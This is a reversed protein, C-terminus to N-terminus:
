CCHICNFLATVCIFKSLSLIYGTSAVSDSTVSASQKSETAEIVDVAVSAPTEDTFAAHGGTMGKDDIRAGPSAVKPEVRAGPLVVKPEVGAGPSLLEPEIRAGPSTLEPKAMVDTNNNSTTNSPLLDDSSVDAIMGSKPETIKQSM